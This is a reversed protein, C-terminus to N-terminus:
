PRDQVWPLQARVRLLMNKASLSIKKDNDIDRVNAKLSYLDQSPPEAEVIGQYKALKKKSM